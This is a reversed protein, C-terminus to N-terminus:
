KVRKRNYYKKKMKDVSKQYKKLKSLGFEKKRKNEGENERIRM